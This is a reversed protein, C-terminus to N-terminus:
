FPNCAHIRVLREEGPQVSFFGPQHHLKIQLADADGVFRRVADGIEVRGAPVAVDGPQEPVAGRQHFGLLQGPVGVHPHRHFVGM